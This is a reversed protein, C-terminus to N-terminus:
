KTLPLYVSNPLITLHCRKPEKNLWLVFCFPKKEFNRGLLFGVFCNLNKKFISIAEYLIWPGTSDFMKRCYNKGYRILSSRKGGDTVGV